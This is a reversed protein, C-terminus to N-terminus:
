QIIKVDGSAVLEDHVKKRRAREAQSKEIRKQADAIAKRALEETRDLDQVDYLFQAIDWTKMRVLASSRVIACKM